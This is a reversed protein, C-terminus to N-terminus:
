LKLKVMLQHYMKITEYIFSHKINFRIHGCHCLIPNWEIEVIHRAHMQQQDIVNCQRINCEKMVLMSAM